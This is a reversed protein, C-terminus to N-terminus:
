AKKSQQNGVQRAQGFMEQFWYDPYAKFPDLRSNVTIDYDIENCPPHCPCDTLDVLFPNSVAEITNVEPPHDGDTGRVTYNCWRKVYYYGNRRRKEGNVDLWCTMGEMAPNGMSIIGNAEVLKKVRYLNECELQQYPAKPSTKQTFPNSNSCKGHPPGVRFFEKVNVILKVHQNNQLEFYKHDAIPDIRIGPQHIFIVTGEDKCQNKWLYESQNVMDPVMGSGSLIAGHLSVARHRFEVPTSVTFCKMFQSGHVAEISLESYQLFSGDSLKIYLYIFVEDEPISSKEVSSKYEVSHFAPYIMYPDDDLSYILKLDDLTVRELSGNNKLTQKEELLWEQADFFSVGRHLCVTVDPFQIDGDVIELNTKRPYTSYNQFVLETQNFFMAWSGLFVIIWLLRKRPEKMLIIKPAGHMSTSDAFNELKEIWRTSQQKDSFNCTDNDHTYSLTM